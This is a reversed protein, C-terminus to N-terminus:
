GHRCVGGPRRLTGDRRDGHWGGASGFHRWQGRHLRGAHEPRQFGCVTRERQYLQGSDSCWQQLARFLGARLHGRLHLKRDAHGRGFRRCRHPHYQHRGHLLHIHRRHRHRLSRDCRGGHFRGNDRRRWYTASILATEEITGGGAFTITGDLVAKASEMVISGGNIVIDEGIANGSIFLGGSSSLYINEAVAGKLFLDLAGGNYVTETSAVATANSLVQTGYIADGQVAGLVLETGGAQIASDSDNGSITVNGGSLVDGSVLSGGALVILTGGNAISANEAVQGSSVTDTGTITSALLLEEGGGSLTTLEFSGAAFDGAFTFSETFSGETM